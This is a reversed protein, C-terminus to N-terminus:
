AEAELAVRLLRRVGPDLPTAEILADLTTADDVVGLARFLYGRPAGLAEEIAVIQDVRPRTQGSLLRSITSDEVQLEKALWDRTRDGLLEDVAKALGVTASHPLADFRDLPM